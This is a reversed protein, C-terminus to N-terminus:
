LVDEGLDVQGVLGGKDESSIAVDNPLDKAWHERAYDSQNTCNVSMIREFAFNGGQLMDKDPRLDAASFSPGLLGMEELIVRNCVLIWDIVQHLIAVENPNIASLLLSYTNNKVTGWNVIYSDSNPNERRRESGIGGLYVENEASDGLVVNIRPYTDHARPYGINVFIENDLIYKRVEESPEVYQSVDIGMAIAENRFNMFTADVDQYNSLFADM